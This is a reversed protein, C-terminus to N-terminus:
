KTRSQNGSPHRRYASVTIEVGKLEECVDQIIRNTDVRVSYRTKHKIHDWLNRFEDDLEFRKKRQVKVRKRMNVPVPGAESEGYVEEIEQQYGEVFKSYRENAIVTLINAREDHVREGNQNVPLRVGRGIQQRRAIYSHVDRLTCIQFINPNDWGENLASHSFIFSVPENFSLLREKDRMILNYAERDKEATGTRSDDWDETGSSRKKAFYAAQVDEPQRDCWEPYNHKLRNFADDFMERLKGRGQYNAVRDIFFLTLAKIDLKKLEQQKRFHEEIATAIQAAHIAERDEGVTEGESVALENGGTAFVVTGYEIRDVVLDQYEPLKTKQFLGDEATVKVEQEKVSGSRLLKHVGLTASVKRRRSEITRVAIYAQNFDDEQM